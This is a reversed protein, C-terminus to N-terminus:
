AEPAEKGTKKNFPQVEPDDFWEKAKNKYWFDIILNAESLRFGLEMLRDQIVGTAEGGMALKYIAAAKANNYKM